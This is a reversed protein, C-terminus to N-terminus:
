KKGGFFIFLIDSILVLGGVVALTVPSVARWLEPKGFVVVAVGLVALVAVFVAASAIDKCQRIAEDRERTVRDCLIELATNCLELGLVLGFALCLWGWSARDVRLTLGLVTVSVVAALQVRLNRQCAVADAVGRLAHIFGFLGRKRM